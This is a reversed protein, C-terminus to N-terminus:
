DREYIVMGDKLARMMFPGRKMREFEDATYILADVAPGASARNLEGFIGEYRDLFRKDTNMLIILDIDSHRDPEGRAYSGFLICRIVKYKELVPRFSAAIGAADPQIGTSQAVM